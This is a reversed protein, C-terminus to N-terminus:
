KRKVTYVVTISCKDADLRIKQSKNIIEFGDLEQEEAIKLKKEALEKVSGDDLTKTKYEVYSEELIEIGIPLAVGKIELYRTSSNSIDGKRYNIYLPIKIGFFCFKKYAKISKVTLDRQERYAAVQLQRTFVNNGALKEEDAPKPEPTRESIEVRAVAGQKNIHVWSFDKFESMLALCLRDRDVSSWMVGSKLDNQELFSCVSTDSVTSNGVVEVRWVFSNLLSVVLVFAVAGVALGTRNKLPMAIFPLGHKEIIKVRGGHAYAIRHLKKYESARCSAKFGYDTKCASRLEIGRKFCETLFDECFGGMFAFDVYGFIFRFFRIM